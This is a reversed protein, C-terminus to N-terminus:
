SLQVQSMKSQSFAQKSFRFHSPNRKVIHLYNLEANKSNCLDFHFYLTLETPTNTRHVIIQPWIKKLRNSNRLTTQTMKFFVVTKYNPRKNDHTTKYSKLVSHM